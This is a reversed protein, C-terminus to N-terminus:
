QWRGVNVEAFPKLLELFKPWSSTRWNPQSEVNLLLFQTLQPTVYFLQLALKDFSSVWRRLAGEGLWLGMQLDRPQPFLDRPPPHGKITRPPLSARSKYGRRGPFRQRHGEYGRTRCDSAERRGFACFLGGFQWCIMIISIDLFIFTKKGFVCCLSIM